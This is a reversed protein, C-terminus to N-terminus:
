MKVLNNAALIEDVHTPPDAGERCSVVMRSLALMAEEMTLGASEWDGEPPQGSSL